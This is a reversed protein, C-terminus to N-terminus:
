ALRHSVVDLVLYWLALARAPGSTPGGRPCCVYIKFALPSVGTCCVSFNGNLPNGNPSAICNSLGTRDQSAREKRGLARNGTLPSAEESLRQQGAWWILM